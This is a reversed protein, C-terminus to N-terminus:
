IFAFPFNFADQTENLYFKEAFAIPNTNELFTNIQIRM